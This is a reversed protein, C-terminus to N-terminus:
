VGSYKTVMKKAFINNGVFKNSDAAYKENLDQLKAVTLRHETELEAKKTQTAAITNELRALERIHRDKHFRYCEILYHYIYAQKKDCGDNPIESEKQPTVITWHEKRKCDKSTFQGSKILEQCIRVIEHYNHNSGILAPHDPPICDNTTYLIESTGNHYKRKVVRHKRFASKVKKKDGYKILFWQHARYWRENMTKVIRNMYHCTSRLHLLDKVSLDAAVLNWCDRGLLEMKGNGRTAIM